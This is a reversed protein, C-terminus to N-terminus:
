AAPPKPKVEQNCEILARYFSLCQQARGQLVLINSPDADTVALVAQDVLKKVAEVYQDFAATSPSANRLRLAATKLDSTTSSM